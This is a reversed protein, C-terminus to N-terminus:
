KTLTVPSAQLIDKFVRISGDIHIQGCTMARVQETVRFSVHQLPDDSDHDKLYDAWWNPGISISSTENEKLAAVTKGGLSVSFLDGDSEPLTCSPDTAIFRVSSFDIAAKQRQQISIRLDKSPALKPALTVDIPQFYDLRANSRSAVEEVSFGEQIMQLVGARLAKAFGNDLTGLQKLWFAALFALLPPLLVAVFILLLFAKFLGKDLVDKLQRPLFGIVVERVQKLLGLHAVAPTPPNTNQSGTEPTTM